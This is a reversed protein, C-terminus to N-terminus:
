HKARNTEIAGGQVFMRRKRLKVLKRWQLRKQGASLKKKPLGSRGAKIQKVEMKQGMM